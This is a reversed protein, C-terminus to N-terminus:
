GSAKTNTYKIYIKHLFERGILVAVLIVIVTPLMEYILGIVLGFLFLFLVGHVMVDLIVCLNMSCSEPCTFHDEARRQASAATRANVASRCLM